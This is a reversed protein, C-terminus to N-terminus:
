RKMKGDTEVAELKNRTATGAGIGLAYADEATVNALGFIPHVCSFLREVRARTEQDYYGAFYGLNQKEIVVAEDRTHNGFRVNHEVIAQFYQEADEADEITMAPKYKEGVTCTRKLHETSIM